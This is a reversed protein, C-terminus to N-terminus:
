YMLIKFPHSIEPLENYNGSDERDEDEPACDLLFHLSARSISMCSGTVDNRISSISSHLLFLAKTQTRYATEPQSLCQTVGCRLLVKIMLVVSEAGEGESQESRVSGLKM